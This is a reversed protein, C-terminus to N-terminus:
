KLIKLLEEKKINDLFFNICMNYDFIADPMKVNTDKGVFKVGNKKVVSFKCIDKETLGEIKEETHMTFYCKNEPIYIKFDTKENIINNFPKLYLYVKDHFTWKLIRTDNNFRNYFFTEKKIEKIDSVKNMDQIAFNFTDVCKNYKQTDLFKQIYERRQFLTNKNLKKNNYVYVDTIYFTCFRDIYGFLVTNNGPYGLGGQNIIYIKNYQSIYFAVNEIKGLIKIQTTFFVGPEGRPSFESYNLLKSVCRREVFKPKTFLKTKKLKTKVTEILKKDTLKYVFKNNFTEQVWLKEYM